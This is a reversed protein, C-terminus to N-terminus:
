ITYSPSHSTTGLFSTDVPLLRRESSKDLANVCLEILANREIPKTTYADCGADICKQRDGTMAHATLAIIPVTCGKLRLLRTTLYGDLEPMQMDTLILEFPFPTILEGDLTQNTTLREIAIKGNDAVEVDAGGKKLVFSILRQNDPGDEILLIRRDALAKAQLDRNTPDLSKKSRPIVTEAPGCDILVANTLDGTGVSITFTSGMGAESRVSIDGGLMEALRKSINLGLGTGGFRRTTSSDAQEFSHFLKNIHEPPIGIGTDVVDIHLLKAEPDFRVILKVGGVETFKIANGVLNVLIQRLRIPDSYIKQPYKTKFSASLGLNKASAKVAMLSLVDHVLQAPDTEICEVTMKGAEIKSLDLIDNIISLLHEGNRKITDIHELRHRPAMSRDGEADLLDAFGMIATMPTRIEHSMNALFESKSRSAAEAAERAAVLERTMRDRMMGRAMLEAVQVLSKLKLEDKALDSNSQVVLIGVHKGDCSLPIRLLYGGIGCALLQCGCKTGCGGRAQRVVVDQGHLAAHCACDKAPSIRVQLSEPDLRPISVLPSLVNEQDDVSFLTAVPELEFADCDLLLEISHLLRETFKMTSSMVAGVRASVEAVKASLEFEREYNVHSTVDRKILVMGNIAEGDHLPSIAVDFWFPVDSADNFKLRGRWAEGRRIIELIDTKQSPHCIFDSFVLSPRGKMNEYGLKKDLDVAAENAFQIIGQLDTIVIADGCRQIAEVFRSNDIGQRTADVSQQDVPQHLGVMRCPTRRPCYEYIKGTSKVWRESGDLGILRYTASFSDSEGLLHKKLNDRVASFDDPHVSQLWAQLSKPFGDSEIEGTDINWDWAVPEVPQVARRIHELARMRASNNLRRGQEFKSSVNGFAELVPELILLSGCAFVATLVIAVAWYESAHLSAVLSCCLQWEKITTSLLVDM